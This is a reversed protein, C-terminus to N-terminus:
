VSKEWKWWDGQLNKYSNCVGNEDYGWWEEEEVVGDIRYQEHIIKGGENYDYCWEEVRGKRNKYTYIPELKSNFTRYRTEDATEYYHASVGNYRTVSWSGVSDNYKEEIIYEDSKPKRDFWEGGEGSRVDGGVNYRYEWREWEGNREMYVLLGDENYERVEDDEEIDKSKNLHIIELVRIKSAKDRSGRVWELVDVRAVIQYGGHGIKGDGDVEIVRFMRHPLNGFVEYVGGEEFPIYNPDFPMAPYVFYNKNM